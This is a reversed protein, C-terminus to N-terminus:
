IQIDLARALLVQSNMWASGPLAEFTVGPMGTISIEGSLPTQAPKSGRTQIALPGTRSLQLQKRQVLSGSVAMSPPKSPWAGAQDLSSLETGPILSGCSSVLTTLTLIDQTQSAM